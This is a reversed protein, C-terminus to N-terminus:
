EVKTLKEIRARVRKLVRQVSRESVGTQAAIEATSFGQLSLQVIDRHYGEMERLLQEVSEALLAAEEPTPERDIAQRFYASDEDAGRVVERRMDRRERRFQVQRRGCKRITMVALLSWLSDWDHLEWAGERQRRFFSQFVSQLVDEPDVKQRVRQDLRSRALGILRGAYRRFLEAAAAEEGARLRTMLVEFSEDASM